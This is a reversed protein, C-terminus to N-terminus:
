RLILVSGQKIVDVVANNSIAVDGDTDTVVVSYTAADNISANTIEFMTSTSSPIIVGDKMWQYSAADLAYVYLTLNDHTHLQQSQPHVIIDVDGTETIVAPTNSYKALVYINRTSYIGANYSFTWDPYINAPSGSFDTNNGIGLGPTRNDSGFSTMSMVTHRDAYNHVQMSGHGASTNFGGDGFDFVNTNNLKSLANPVPLSNDQNYSSPWFEINGTAIDIGTTVAANASAYVNMHDVYRRHAAGRDATPVGLVSLDNAFADMSAWAWTTVASQELEMCYAIREINANQPFLSEDFTYECGKNSDYYTRTPVALEYVLQYDGVEAIGSMFAPLDLSEVTFNYTTGESMPTGNSARATIGGMTLTYGQGETLTSTELRVTRLNPLLTAASISVGNNLSYHSVLAAGDAVETDFTVAIANLDRAVVHRDVNPAATESIYGYDPQIFVYLRRSDYNGANSYHTWDPYGTGSTNNGIGICVASSNNSNYRNIAFLTQSAGYNHVQMSGYGNGTNGGSDGFDFTDTANPVGTSNAGGYNSPWFEINGTTIGNGNVIGGVNSLVDLNNVYQQFFTGSVPVKLKAYTDTFSDMATWIYQTTTGSVLELYYAVRKFNDPLQDTNDTSTYVQNSASIDFYGFVPIDVTYAHMYDSSAPINETVIAPNPPPNLSPPSSASQRVLVYLTRKIYDTGANFAHTWDRNTHNRNGIGIGAEENRNWNNFGFVTHGELYNHVQMSGYTGTTRRTDGFDFVTDSAGQISLGNVEYYDNPWFEINGSAFSGDTVGSVNSEVVLNSVIQQFIAGSKFTPVGTMTKKLTFAEMSTWVYQTTGDPRELELYYAVRDFAGTLTSQDYSYMESGASNYNNFAEIDLRYIHKYGDALAGANAVIESPLTYLSVGITSDAAIKNGSLDRINNITLTLPTSAPQATTTIVVRKKDNLLKSDVISVGSDLSFFSGNVSDEDLDESFEVTILTGAAGAKASVVTPPTTEVTDIKVYIQLTKVIYGGSNLNFTWDPNSGTPDNGIGLCMYENSNWHNIAMLVQKAAYNHIQMSGYNGNTSRTDGFDYASGSADPIGLANGASYNWPWFEINGSLGTGTTIGAVNCYVNMDSVYQQYIVNDAFTPFGIKDADDTFADMSTWLYQLDEGDKRLELYYAIRSFSSKPIGASRDTSYKVVKADYDATNPLDISYVLTYDGYEAVHIDAGRPTLSIFEVQSDAPISLPTPTTEDALNNMTITYITGGTQTSTTLTVTRQDGSLSAGTVTLGGDIAYNATNTASVYSLAKNFTIEVTTNDESEFARIPAPQNAVVNTGIVNTIAPFWADAMKQYGTANPHVNDALDSLEVYAHMDLFTVNRGLGQQTTVKGPIYPNFYNTINIYNADNRKMLSTVIIQASPQCEALRTILLDLNDIDDLSSDFGGSDNTGIHLLIVHPDEIQEFWGYIYDYLGNAPNTIRWGGHGEHQTESGLGPDSNGNQTGVYDVNYGANTLAIYLPLRYGGAVPSGYTISDGLPMIRIPSQSYAIFSFLHVAVFFLISKTMKCM